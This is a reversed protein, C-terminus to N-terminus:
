SDIHKVNLHALSQEVSLKVQEAYSLKSEKWQGHSYKTQIFLDDLVLGYDRVAQLWPM